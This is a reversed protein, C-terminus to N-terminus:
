FGRVTEDSGPQGLSYTVSITPEPGSNVDDCSFSSVVAELSSIASTVGFPDIETVWEQGNGQVNKLFWM